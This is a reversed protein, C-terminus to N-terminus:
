LARLILGRIKSLMDRKKAITADAVRPVTGSTMELKSSYVVM